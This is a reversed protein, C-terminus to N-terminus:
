FGRLVIGLYLAMEYNSSTFLAENLYRTPTDNYGGALLELAKAVRMLTKLCVRKM